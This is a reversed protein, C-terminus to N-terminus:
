RVQLIKKSITGKGGGPKGLILMMRPEEEPAAVPQTSMYSRKVATSFSSRQVTTRRSMMMMMATSSSAACRGALSVRVTCTTFMNHTELQETFPSSCSSYSCLPFLAALLAQIQNGSVISEGVISKELLFLSPLHLKWFASCLYWTARDRTVVLRFPVSTRPPLTTDLHNVGKAIVSKGNSNFKCLACPV